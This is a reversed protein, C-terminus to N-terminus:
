GPMKSNGRTRINLALSFQFVSFFLISSHESLTESWYFVRSHQFVMWNCSFTVVL